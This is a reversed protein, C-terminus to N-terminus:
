CNCYSNMRRALPLCRFSFFCYTASVLTHRAENFHWLRRTVDPVAQQQRQRQLGNYATIRNESVLVNVSTKSDYVSVTNCVYM